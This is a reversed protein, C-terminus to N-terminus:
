KAAPKEPVREPTRVREPERPPAPEPQKGPVPHELPEVIHVRRPKGIDM